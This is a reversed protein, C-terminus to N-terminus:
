EADWQQLHTQILPNALHCTPADIDGVPPREANLIGQQSLCPGKELETMEESKKCLCGCGKMKMERAVQFEKVTKTTWAGRKVEKRLVWIHPPAQM